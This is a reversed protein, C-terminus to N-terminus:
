MLVRSATLATLELGAAVLVHLQQHTALVELVAVVLM